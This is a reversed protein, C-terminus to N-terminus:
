LNADRFNRTKSGGQSVATTKLKVISDSISVKSVINGLNSSNQNYLSAFPIGRGKSPNQLKKLNVFQNLDSVGQPMNSIDNMKRRKVSDQALEQSGVDKRGENSHFSEKHAIHGPHM